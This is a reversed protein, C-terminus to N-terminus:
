LKTNALSITADGFNYATCYSRLFPAGLIWDFGLVDLNASMIMLYCVSSDDQKQILYNNPPIAYEKGGIIFVIDPLSGSTCNVSYLKYADDYKANTANLIWDVDNQPGILIPSFTYLVIEESGRSKFQGVKFGSSKIQWYENVSVSIDTWTSACNTDDKKGYTIVGNTTPQSLDRKREIYLSFIPKDLQSKIAEFVATSNATSLSPWGLGLIGDVPVNIFGDTVENIIGFPLSSNSMGAMKFNDSAWVGHAEIGGLGSTFNNSQSQYTSSQSKNFKQRAYTTANGECAQSTCESDVVWFDASGLDFGVQLVQGPTGLTVNGTLFASYFDVLNQSTQTTSDPKQLLRRKLMAGDQFAKTYDRLDESLHKGPFLQEYRRQSATRSDSDDRQRGAAILDEIFSGHHTVPIQFHSAKAFQAFFLFSYLIALLISYLIKAEM